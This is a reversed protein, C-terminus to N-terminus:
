RGRSLGGGPNLGIALTVNATSNTVTNGLADQVEVQIALPIAAGATVSTPQVTFVLVTPPGANISQIQMAGTLPTASASIAQPGALTGRFYFSAATGGSLITAGAGLGTGCAADSYLTFGSAPVGLTVVLPAGIVNSPNSNADQTQVEVPLASCQGATASRPPSTFVLKSPPGVGISEVQIASTLPSASATLTASGTVTGSFYFSVASAGVGLALPGTLAVTCASDSFLSLAVGSTALTVTTAAPIPALNNNVDRTEVTVVSSCSGSQVGQTATAFVLQSPVGSTVTLLQTTPPVGSLTATITTAQASTAKVYVVGSSAGASVGIASGSLATACAADSFFTVGSLDASLSISSASLVGVPNGDQDRTELSLQASCDDSKVTRAPTTFLLAAVASVHAYAVGSASCGSVNGAADTATAYFTTTSSPGVTVGISFAGAADAAGTGAVTGGCGAGTYLRVTSGATATGEVSPTSVNSPSVPTTGVLNPAAVEQATGAVCVDDRCVYGDLCRGEKCPRGEAGGVDVNLSCGALVLCAVSCVIRQM